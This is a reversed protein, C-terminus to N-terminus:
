HIKYEAKDLKWNNDFFGSGIVGGAGKRLMTTKFILFDPFGSGSVFYRNQSAAKLGPMGTGAIVGVSGVESGKLPYIFYAALDVGKIVQNGISIQERKIHIPCDDLVLSWALNMEEHGFLIVNRNNYKERTYDKDPIVDVAGNGRYWFTEADYRAKNFAWENEQKNGNTGYVFVMRNRFAYKFLGNRHPGKEDFPPLDGQIWTNNKLRFYKKTENGPVIKINTSDLRLDFVQNKEFGSLDLMFRTTNDLDIQIEKQKIDHKYRSSSLKLQSFQQLINLMRSSSSVGPSYTVFELHEVEKAPLQRHSKFFDFMPKWDVCENGWWHGAGPREYYSFDTHFKGLYERMFRAQEVPVNDDQDGHLVYVGYQLYNRSLGLTNSPLASRNILDSIEDAGNSKSKGAYSWFSYWGASPGIAAWYGPFTVGVQWAGHGGMSHGTLYMRYPDPQYREISLKLVEEADLRGWDEWDFGYPRRNTPAVLTGWEKSQYANAQNVAEVSAGHLSYFLALSDKYGNVPPVVSYYQVSGDIQSIFTEKHKAVLDKIQIKLDLNELSFVLKKKKDILTLIIRESDHGLENTWKVEFPVKRSSFPPVTPIDLITEKFGGVSAKIKYGKIIGSTANIVRVAGLRGQSDNNILDPMLLDRKTLFVPSVPKVLKAQLKGRGVRFILKNKGKKIKVPHQVWGYGYIDGGRPAENVLVESHGNAELILTQNSKSVFNFAIYGGRLNKHRFWGKEDAFLREWYINQGENNQSFVEGEVPESLSDVSYRYWFEDTFIAERGYSGSLPVSLGETFSKVIEQSYGDGKGLQIFILIIFSLRLLKMIRIFSTEM